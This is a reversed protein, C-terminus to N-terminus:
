SRGISRVFPGSSRTTRAPAARHPSPESSTILSSSAGRFKARSTTGSAPDSSAVSSRNASYRSTSPSPSLRAPPPTRRQTPPTRAAPSSAANTHSPDVASTGTRTTAPDAGMGRGALFAAVQVRSSFGLKMLISAVHSEATRRSIVLRESIERDRLGLCVLGAVERERPSLRALARDSSTTAALVAAVGNALPSTTRATGGSAADARSLTHLILRSVPSAKLERVTGCERGLAAGATTQDLMSRAVALHLRAIARGIQDASGSFRRLAGELLAVAEAPLGKWLAVQGAMLDTYASGSSWDPQPRHRRM